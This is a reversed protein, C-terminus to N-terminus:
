AIAFGSYLRRKEKFNMIYATWSHPVQFSRSVAIGNALVKVPDQMRFGEILYDRVARQVAFDACEKGWRATLKYCGDPWKLPTYKVRSECSSTCPCNTHSSCPKYILYGDKLGWASADLVQNAMTRLELSDRVFDPVKMYRTGNTTFIKTTKYHAKTFFGPEVGADMDFLRSVEVIQERLKFELDLADDESTQMVHQIEALYPILNEYQLYGCNCQCSDCEIPDDVPDSIEQIDSYEQTISSADGGDLNTLPESPLSYLITCSM